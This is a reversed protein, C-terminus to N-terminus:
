NFIITLTSHFVCMLLFNNQINRCAIKLSLSFHIVWSITDFHLDTFTPWPQLNVYWSHYSSRECNKMKLLLLTKECIRDHTVLNFPNLPMRTVKFLSHFSKLLFLVSVKFCSRVKCIFTCLPKYHRNQFCLCACLAWYMFSFVFFQASSINYWPLCQRKLAQLKHLQTTQPPSQQKVPLLTSFGTHRPLAAEYIGELNNARKAKLEEPSWHWCHVWFDTEPFPVSCLFALPLEGTGKLGIGALLYLTSKPFVKAEWSPVGQLILGSM